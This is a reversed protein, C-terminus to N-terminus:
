KRKECQELFFSLVRSGDVADPRAYDFCLREPHWQVSWVPLSEHEAAEPTGDAALQVTRLGRGTRATAQHHSSNVSFATGYIRGLFSDAAATTEHVRDRKNDDRTHSDRVALDQILTGGFYVNLLQHGRCIGFVPKKARVFRDLVSLQLEDLAEDPVDSGANEQGYRWSALDGGGPLLLGDFAEPQTDAGVVTAEAGLKGLASLYNGVQEKKGCVAIKVTQNM